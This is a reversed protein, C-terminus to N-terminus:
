APSMTRIPSISNSHLSQSRLCSVPPLLCSACQAHAHEAAREIGDVDAMQDEGLLRPILEVERDDVHHWGAIRRVFTVAAQCRHVVAQRHDLPRNRAMGCEPGGAHVGVSGAWVVGQVHHADQLLLKGLTPLEKKQHSVVAQRLQGAPMPGLLQHGRAPQHRQRAVVHRQIPAMQFRPQGADVLAEGEEVHGFQFNGRILDLGAHAGAAADAIQRRFRHSFIDHLPPQVACVAFLLDVFRCIPLDAFRPGTLKHNASKSTQENWRIRCMQSWSGPRGLLAFRLWTATQAHLANAWWDKPVFQPVVITITENPQRQASLEEIYKLLPEIMLRYPSDLIVLRTGKGWWDWRQQLRAIEDPDISVHVATIDDSLVRAYRLAALTGKHVSSIPLIVRHRTMSPPEAFEDLSLDRALSRYHRHIASFIVVVLPILILVVWAGDRFKTVAFVLTVITTCIAGFGNILMKAQWGHEFRLTSGREQVVQDATLRGTKWWRRAMGAQSLTFSLFVGIAYLPILGTVSAQFVVILLGAVLALAIIGRSYVLRSGRFALQRPLFGDQGLLASLRPFGNYSTNAAMVLIVMTAAIVALYFANRGGMVTRALQSIVTEHESPIVGIQTSIFTIGLFLVGLIASMWILTIGANRSRPERFATIGNSIAEVGTLATTGSSFAHLILFLSVAQLTEVNQLAPPDAVVGLAGAFYRVLGIIVTLSMMSRF